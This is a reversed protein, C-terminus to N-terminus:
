KLKFTDTVPAADANYPYRDEDIVIKQTQAMAEPEKTADRYDKKLFSAAFVVLGIFLMHLLTEKLM